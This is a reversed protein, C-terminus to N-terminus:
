SQREEDAKKRFDRIVRAIFSNSNNKDMKYGGIEKAIRRVMTDNGDHRQLRLKVYTKIIEKRQQSGEFLPDTM